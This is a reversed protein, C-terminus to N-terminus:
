TKSNYPTNKDFAKGTFRDTSKRIKLIESIAKGELSIFVCPVFERYTAPKAIKWAGTGIM